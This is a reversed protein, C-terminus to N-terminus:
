GNQATGISILQNYVEYAVNAMMVPPVSMGILYWPKITSYNFDRPFSGLIAAAENSLLTPSDWNYICPTSTITWSPKYPNLKRNLKGTSSGSLSFLGGPKTNNCHTPNKLAKGVRNINKLAISATIPKEIFKLRIQKDAKHCIFFVRERQQPVGMSAANLLFVQCSYGIRKFEQVILKVYGKANGKLMGSVNEAIVIKPQMKEALAIFDFFLDDLVQKAQGERFHKDKGWAKERLGATSFTSCPPSGDLVDVQPLDDRSLLDKIPALIYQKPHHNAEYVKQMQPDIDNACVVDYGALKYGMSSGGGCSFTTMVTTGHYDIGKAPYGDSLNWKYNFKM